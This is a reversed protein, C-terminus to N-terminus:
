TKATELGELGEVILYVPSIKRPNREVAEKVYERNRVCNFHYHLAGEGSEISGFYM